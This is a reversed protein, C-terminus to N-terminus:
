LFPDTKGDPAPAPNGGAVIRPTVLSGEEGAEFLFASEEKLAEIQKELGKLEDGELKISEIDLLAKVATNNRAKANTLAIEIAASKKTELLTAKHTEKDADYKKQLESLQTQLEESAVGSKKLKEIDKDRSEIDSTLKTVEAQAEALKSAADKSEGLAKGHEAMITEVTSEIVDQELGLKKLAEKLFERKM